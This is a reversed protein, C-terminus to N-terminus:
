RIGPPFSRYESKSANTDYQIGAMDIDTFMLRTRFLLCRRVAESKEEAAEDAEKKAQAEQEEAAGGGADDGEFEEELRAAEEDDESRKISAEHLNWGQYFEMQRQRM